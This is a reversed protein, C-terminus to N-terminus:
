GLLSSVTGRKARVHDILRGIFIRLNPDPEQRRNRELASLMREQAYRELLGQARPGLSHTNARMVDLLLECAEDTGITAISQLCVERVAANEHNAFLRALADMAQPFTLRRLAALGADRLNESPANVAREILPFVEKHKLSGCRQIVVIRTAEEGLDYLATLPRVAAPHGLDGLREIIHAPVQKPDGGDNIHDEYDLALLLAKRRQVEWVNKHDGVLAGISDRIDSGRETDVLDQVWIEPIQLRRRFFDPLGVPKDYGRGSRFSEDKLEKALSAYREVKSESLPLAHLMDYCELVGQDNHVRNYCGVAALFANEILEIPNGKEMGQRAVRVWSEAADAMFHDGYIFGVRRAYEAAERFLEAVSHYEGLEDSHQIFDYYYQMTFFRDAKAKLMRICNLYGEALNEYSAGVKGIQILCLYCRFAHDRDGNQERIDAEQELIRTATALWSTAREQQGCQLALRGANLAALGCPYRNQAAEHSRMLQEYLALAHSLANNEEAIVAAHAIMGVDRYADSAEDLRRALRFIRATDRPSGHKQYLQLAHKTDILYEFIRAAALGRRQQIFQEALERAWDSYDTEDVFFGDQLLERWAAAAEPGVGLERARQVREVISSM